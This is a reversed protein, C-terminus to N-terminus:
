VCDAKDTKLRGPLAKVQGAGLLECSFGEAELRFFPARWYGSTAEMVVVEVEHERLWAALALIEAKTTGFSRVEQTRRAPDAKAAGQRV